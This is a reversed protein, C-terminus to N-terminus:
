LMLAIKMQQKPLFTLKTWLESIQPKCKQASMFSQVCGAVSPHQRIIMSKEQSFHGGTIFIAATKLKM